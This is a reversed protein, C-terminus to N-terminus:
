PVSSCKTLRTKWFAREATMDRSCHQPLRQPPIPLPLCLIKLICQERFELFLWGLNFIPNWACEEVRQAVKLNTDLFLFCLTNEKSVLNNWGSTPLSWRNQAVPTPLVEDKLYCAVSMMPPLSSDIHSSEVSTMTCSYYFCSAQMSSNSYPRVDTKEKIGKLSGSFNSSVIVTGM